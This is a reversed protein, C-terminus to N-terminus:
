LFLWYEDFLKGESPKGKGRQVAFERVAFEHESVSVDMWDLETYISKFELAPWDSGPEIRM